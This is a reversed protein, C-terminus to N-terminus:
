SRVRERQWARISSALLGPDDCMPFHNGRSVVVQHTDPLCNRGARSFASRTMANALSPSCLCIGSLDPSLKTWGRISIRADQLMACIATFLGSATEVSAPSFPNRPRARGHPSRRRLRDVHHTAPNRDARRIRADTQQGHAGAHVHFDNSALHGGRIFGAQRSHPQCGPM